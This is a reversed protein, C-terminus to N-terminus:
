WRIYQEWGLERVRAVAMIRVVPNPDKVQRKLRAKLKADHGPIFRSGPSALSGCGCQCPKAEGLPRAARKRPQVPEDSGYAALCAQCGKQPSERHAGSAHEILLAADPLVRSAM